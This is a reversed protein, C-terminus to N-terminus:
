GATSGNTSWVALAFGDAIALGFVGGNNPVFSVAGLLLEDEEEAVTVTGTVDGIGASFKPPKESPAATCGSIVGGASSAVRGEVVGAALGNVPRLGPANLRMGFGSGIAPVGGADSVLGLAAKPVVALSGRAGAAPDGKTAFGPTAVDPVVAVPPFLAILVGVRTDVAGGSTVGGFSEGEPSGSFGMCISNVFKIVPIPVSSALTLWSEWKSTSARDM